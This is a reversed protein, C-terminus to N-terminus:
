LHSHSTQKKQGHIFDPLSYCLQLSKECIDWIHLVITFIENLVFHKYSYTETNFRKM